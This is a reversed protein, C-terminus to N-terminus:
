PLATETDFNLKHLKGGDKALEKGIMEGFRAAEKFQKETHGYKKYKEAFWSMREPIKGTLKLFVGITRWPEPNPHSFVMVNVVIGGCKHLLRKL